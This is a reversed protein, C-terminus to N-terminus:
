RRTVEFLDRGRITSFPALGQGLLWLGQDFIGLDYGGTKFEEHRDVSAASLVIAYVVAAAWVLAAPRELNLAWQRARGRSSSASAPRDM